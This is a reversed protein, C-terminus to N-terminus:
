GGLCSNVSKEYGAARAEFKDPWGRGLAGDSRARLYIYIADIYCMVNRNPGFPPMVLVQSSSVNQKGGIIIGKAEATNLSRLANVLSPAYSSGLADPGHCQQCNAGYMTYGIYTYWDVAGDKGIRYTPNGQQDFYEGSTSTVPTPNGAGDSHAASALFVSGATVLCRFLIATRM